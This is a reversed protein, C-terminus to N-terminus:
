AHAANKQWLLMVSTGFLRQPLPELRGLRGLLANLWDSKADFGASVIDKETKKRRLLFKRAVLLPYYPAGWYTAGLLRLGVARGLAAARGLTYRRLHGAMADYVSFLHGYAPLNVCLLGGPQLHHLTAQLFGTEDEIHELVDFLFISKYKAALEPLRDHINYVFLGGSASANHALANEDLDFGDAVIGCERELQSQLLGRGCGVDAAPTMDRLWPAGLARFVEFRRRVWFHDLNAIAHWCDTMNVPLAPSLHVIERM